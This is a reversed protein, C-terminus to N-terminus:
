QVSKPFERSGYFLIRTMLKPPHLFTNLGL